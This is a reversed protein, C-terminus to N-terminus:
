ERLTTHPSQGYTQRYLVAFRGTHAFGWRAAVASVTTTCHNGAILDQHARHLRVSRVYETPTTDLRRRFLYQVARPTLHVAAAIDNVGIDTDAHDQVFSLARSLAAPTAGDSEASAPGALNSPFCELTAAALAHAAAMVTPSHPVADEAAFTTEAFDLTRHWSAASTATAVRCGLFRIREPIPMPLDAAVRRLASQEISVIHFRAHDLLLGCPLDPTVMLPEGSIAPIPGGDGAQSLRGRCPSIIVVNRVPHVLLHGRGGVTVEDLSVQGARSRLHQVSTGPELGAFRWQPNYAEAFFRCASDPDNTVFEERWLPAEGSLLVALRPRVPGAHGHRVVHHQGRIAISESSTSSDSSSNMSPRRGTENHWRADGYARHV